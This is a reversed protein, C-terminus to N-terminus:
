DVVAVVADPDKHTGIFTVVTGGAKQRKSVDPGMQVQVYTTEEVHMDTVLQRQKLKVVFIVLSIENYVTDKSIGAMSSNDGKNSSYELVDNLTLTTWLQCQPTYCSSPTHLPAPVSTFPTRAILPINKKKTEQILALRHKELNQLFENLLMQVEELTISKAEETKDVANSTVKGLTKKIPEDTHEEAPTCWNDGWGGTMPEGWGNHAMSETSAM